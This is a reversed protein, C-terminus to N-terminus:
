FYEIAIVYKGNWERNGQRYWNVAAMEGNVLFVEIPNREIRYTGMPQKGDNDVQKEAYIWGQGDILIQKIEKEM